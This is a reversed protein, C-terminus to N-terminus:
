VSFKQLFKNLFSYRYFTYFLALLFNSFQMDSFVLTSTGSSIRSADYTTCSSSFQRLKTKSKPMWLTWCISSTKSKWRFEFNQSIWCSTWMSWWDGIWTRIRRWFSRSPLKSCKHVKFRFKLCVNKLEFDIFKSKSPVLWSSIHRQNQNVHASETFRNVFLKAESITRSNLPM